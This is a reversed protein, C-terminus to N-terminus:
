SRVNITPLQVGIFWEWRFNGVVLGSRLKEYVRDLHAASELHGWSYEPADLKLTRTM